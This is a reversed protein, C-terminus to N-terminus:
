DNKLQAVYQEAKSAADSEPALTRAQNYYKLASQKGLDKWSLMFYRGYEEVYKGIEVKSQALNERMQQRGKEALKKREKSDKVRQLYNDRSEDTGRNSPVEFIHLYDDFYNLAERTAEQDYSPGSVLGQHLQALLFYAEEALYHDPYYNVLKELASVAEENSSDKQSIKAIVMLARPAFRPGRCLEVVHNLRKRDSSASRMRPVVGWKKPLEATALLEAMRMLSVAVREFDYTVYALAILQLHEFAKEWDGQNERIIAARYLAEPGVLVDTGKITLVLDCRRKTFKEFLKLAKSTEKLHQLELASIFWEKAEKDEYPKQNKVFFGTGPFLSKKEDETPLNARSNAFSDLIVLCSTLIMLFIRFTPYKAHM